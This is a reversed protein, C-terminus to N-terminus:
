DRLDVILREDTSIRTPYATLGDGDAPFTVAEDCTSRFVREDGDWEAFCDDTGPVRTEFASWGEDLAGGRHQVYIDRDGGVLDNFILPQGDGDDIAGALVESYGANFEADGLRVDAQGSSALQLILWGVGLGAVVAAIALAVAKTGKTM